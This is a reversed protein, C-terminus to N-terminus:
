RSSSRAGARATRSPRRSTTSRGPPATARATALATAPATATGDGSGGDISGSQGAFLADAISQNGTSLSVYGGADTAAIPTTPTGGEETEAIAAGTLLLLALLGYGTIRIM